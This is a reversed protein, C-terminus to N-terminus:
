KGRTGQCTVHAISMGAPKFYHRHAIQLFEREKGKCVEHHTHMALVEDTTGAVKYVLSVPISGEQQDSNKVSAALSAVCNPYHGWVVGGGRLKLVPTSVQIDLMWTPANGSEERTHNLLLLM